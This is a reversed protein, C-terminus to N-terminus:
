IWVAPPASSRGEQASPVGAPPVQYRRDGACCAATDRKLPPSRRRRQARSAEALVAAACRPRLPVQQAQTPVQSGRRARRRGPSTATCAGRGVGGRSATGHQVASYKPTTGSGLGLVGSLVACCLLELLGPVRAGDRWRVINVQVKAGPSGAEGEGEMGRKKKKERGARSKWDELGEGTGEARQQQKGGEKQAGVGGLIRVGGLPKSDADGSNFDKGEGGRATKEKM